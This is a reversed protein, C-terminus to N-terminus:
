QNGTLEGCVRTPKLFCLSYDHDRCWSTRTRRKPDELTLQVLGRVDTGSPKLVFKSPVSTSPSISFPQLVVAGAELDLRKSLVAAVTTTGTSTTAVASGSAPQSATTNSDAYSADLSLLEVILLTCALTFVSVRRQLCAANSQAFM